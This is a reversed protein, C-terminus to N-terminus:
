IGHRPNELRTVPSKCIEIRSQPSIDSAALVGFQEQRLYALRKGEGM